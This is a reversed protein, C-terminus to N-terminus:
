VEAKTEGTIIFSGESDMLVDSINVGKERAIIESVRPGCFGGQCRGLGAGTRRKIAGLSLCPINSKLAAVIEGETIKECRCIIRGYLPDKAIIEKKEETSLAKFFIQKRETIINEKKILKLGAQRTLDVVMEAIAPAASLGPSKIGIVNIFGNKENIIFDEKNTIARVGAFNRINERFEINPVSKLADKIVRAQGEATTKTDDSGNADDSSPGVILNKHITPSVLVGKGYKTPCQFITHKVIDGQNVDLLFYQGKTELSQYDNEEVMKSVSVGDVGAANIVCKTEFDGNNTKVLYGNETKEISTVETKLFLRAENSIATETLALTLGWPSIVAASPAYLASKVSKSVNPEIEFVENASLIKLGKVGNLVGRDYLKLITESEEDSFALVLSGIKNYEVSLNQCLEEMMQSGKINLKAMLTNPKPDYGAHIIASNAKSTKNAVDNEKELITIKLDYKALEYAINAGIVGCGIILVDTM